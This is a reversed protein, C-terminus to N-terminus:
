RADLQNQQFSAWRAYATVLEEQQLSQQEFSKRCYAAALEEPQLSYDRSAVETLQWLSIQSYARLQSLQNQFFLKRFAFSCMCASLQMLSLNALM